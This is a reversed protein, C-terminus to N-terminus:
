NERTPSATRIDRHLLVFRIIGVVFTVIGAVIFGSGAMLAWMGSFIRICAAGTLALALGTRIYALLTRENALTTRDVALQDRLILDTDKFRRYPNRKGGPKVPPRVDPFVPTGHNMVAGNQVLQRVFGALKHNAKLVAQQKITCPSGDFYAAFVHACRYERGARAVSINAALRTILHWKRVSETEQVNVVVNARGPGKAVLHVIDNLSRPRGTLRYWVSVM